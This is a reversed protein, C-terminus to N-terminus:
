HPPEALPDRSTNGQGGDFPPHLPPLEGSKEPLTRWLCREPKLDCGDLAVLPDKVFANWSERTKNKQLDVKFIEAHWIAKPFEMAADSLRITVNRRNDTEYYGLAAPAWQSLFKGRGLRHCATCRSVPSDKPYRSEDLVVPTWEGKAVTTKGERGYVWLEELRARGM